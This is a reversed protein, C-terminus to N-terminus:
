SADYGADEIASVIQARSLTAPDFTVTAQSRSLDVDANQMGPLATLVASVSRVCGSCTMGGIKIELTEM